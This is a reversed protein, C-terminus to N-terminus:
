PLEITIFIRDDCEALMLTPFAEVDRDELESCETVFM